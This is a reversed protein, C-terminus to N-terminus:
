GDASGSLMECLARRARHLAQDVANRDIDLEAAIEEIEWGRLYRLAGVQRAREPLEAFARALRDVGGPDPEAQHLEEWAEPLPVLQV